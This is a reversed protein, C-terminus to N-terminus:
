ESEEAQELFKSFEYENLKGDRLLYDTKKALKHTPVESTSTGIPQGVLRNNPTVKKIIEIREVWVGEVKYIDKSKLVKQLTSYSANAVRSIGKVTTAAYFKGHRFTFYIHTM